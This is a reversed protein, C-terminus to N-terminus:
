SVSAWMVYMFVAIAGIVQLVRVAQVLVEYHQSREQKTIVGIALVIALPAQLVYYAGGALVTALIFGFVYEM